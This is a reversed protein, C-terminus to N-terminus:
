QRFEVDLVYNGFIRILPKILRQNSYIVADQSQANQFSLEMPVLM